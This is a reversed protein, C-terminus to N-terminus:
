FLLGQIEWIWSESSADLPKWVFSGTQLLRRGRPLCIGARPKGFLIACPVSVESVAVNKDKILGIVDILANGGAPLFLLGCPMKWLHGSVVERGRMRYCLIFVGVVFHKSKVSPKLNLQLEAEASLVNVARPTVSICQFASFHADSGAFAGLFSSCQFFM